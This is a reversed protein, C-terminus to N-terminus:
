RFCIVTIAKSLKLTKVMSQYMVIWIGSGLLGIALIPVIKYGGKVFLEPNFCFLFISYWTGQWTYYFEKITTFAAGLCAFVSHQERWAKMVLQGYWFDDGTPHTYLGVYLIPLLSLAFLAVIIWMAVSETSDRLTRATVETNQERREQQTRM